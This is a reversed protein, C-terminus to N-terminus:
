SDLNPVSWGGPKDFGTTVNTIVFEPGIIGARSVLDLYAQAPAGNKHAVFAAQDTFTELFVFRTPDDPDPVFHFGLTGPEGTLSGYGDAQAIKLFEARYQAQVNTFVAVVTFVTGGDGHPSALKGDGTTATLSYNRVVKAPGAIGARAAHARLDREYRGHQHRQYAAESTFTSAIVVRSPDDPDPVVHVSYTGPEHRLSDYGDDQAAAIFGARATAPIHEWTTISVYAVTGEDRNREVHGKADDTASVTQANGTTAAGATQTNVTQANVTQASVTQAGALVTAAIALPLLATRLKM